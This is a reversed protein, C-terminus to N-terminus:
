IELCSFLMQCSLVNMLIALVPSMSHHKCWRVGQTINDLVLAIHFVHCSGGMGENFPEWEYLRGMFPYSNYSSCQVARIHRSAPPCAQVSMYVSLSHIHTGRGVLDLFPWGWPLNWDKCDCGLMTLWWLMEVIDTKDSRMKRLLRWAKGKM